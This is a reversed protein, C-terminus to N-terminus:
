LKIGVGHLGSSIQAMIFTLLIFYPSIHTVRYLYQVCRKICKFGPLTPVVNQTALCCTAYCLDIKSMLTIHQISGLIHGFKGPYQMQSKYLANGTLPLAAM